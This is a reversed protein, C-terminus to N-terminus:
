CTKEFKEGKATFYKVAPKLRCGDATLMSNGDLGWEKEREVAARIMQVQGAINRGCKVSQGNM